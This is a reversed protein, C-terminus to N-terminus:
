SNMSDWFEANTKAQRMKEALFELADITGM